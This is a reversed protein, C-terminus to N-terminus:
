APPQELCARPHAAAWADLDSKPSRTTNGAKWADLYPWPYLVGRRVWWEPAPCPLSIGFHVHCGAGRANGSDGVAGLRTGATVRMGTTVGDDISRLHASYYRVGDDGIIAVFRGGRTAPDDVNPDWPDDRRLENVVGDVPAVFTSGCPAFVDTAPYDHHSHAYQTSSAEAVPFAHAVGSAAVAAAATTPPVTARPV